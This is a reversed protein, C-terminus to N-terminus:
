YCCCIGERGEMLYNSIRWLQLGELCFASHRVWLRKDQFNKCVQLDEPCVLPLHPSLIHFPLHEPKPCPSALPLPSVPSAIEEKGPARTLFSELIQLYNKM